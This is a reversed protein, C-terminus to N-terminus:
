SFRELARALRPVRTKLWFRAPGDTALVEVRPLAFRDSRPGVRGPRLAFGAAFSRSVAARARGDEEGYPYAFFRPRPLGLAAIRAAAGATERELAADELRPLEPHTASHCGIEAGCAAVRALGAADLLPLATCGNAADWANHGGVQDAVAFALAPVARPALVTEAVGALDAYCDDFTVLVARRPLPAEGDLAALVHAASVFTFGARSLAEIQAAFRQPTLGYPALVPDRSLDQMAHYCLVLAHRGSPIGGARAVAQWYGLSRAFFFLRMIARRRAQRDPREWRLATLALWRSLAVAFPVRALPRLLLRAKRNYGAHAAFLDRAQRPHKAAFRVDAEGADAWQRLHAEASVVYRQWSVADTAFRVTHRKLLRIGFDLDENGFSGDQTFGPDFGGLAEFVPRRVSLQGTLLDHLMLPGGAGLRRSRASAWTAVAEALFGDESAPDLPIDGLVADAGDAYARAHAALLDARAMMDDDLFLLIDGRARAAGHNRAASAGANPQEVVTLPFPCGVARLAEASGDTSGDVVIVVDVAGDYELRGIARLADCVTERRQYTPVIISFSPRDM